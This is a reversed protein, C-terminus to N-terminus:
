EIVEIKVKRGALRYVIDDVAIDGIYNTYWGDEDRTLLMGEYSLPLRDAIAKDLSKVITEKELYNGLWLDEDFGDYICVKNGNSLEVEIEFKYLEYESGYHFCYEELEEDTKFSAKSILSGYKHVAEAVANKVNDRFKIHKNDCVAEHKECDVRSEFEQGCNDCLYTQKAKM